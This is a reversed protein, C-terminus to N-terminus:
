WLFDAPGTEHDELTVFLISSRDFVKEEDEAIVKAAEPATLHAMANDFAARDDFWVETAVDFPPEDDSRYTDNKWTRMYHRVNKRLGPVTKLALPIHHDEYYDIMQELTTGPKRKILVMAKFMPNSKEKSTTQM